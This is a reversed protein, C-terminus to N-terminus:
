KRETITRIKFRYAHMQEGYVSREADDWVLRVSGDLAKEVESAAIDLNDEVQALDRGGVMLWLSLNEVRAGLVPGPEFSDRVVVIVAHGALIPSLTNAPNPIILYKPKGRHRQTLVQGLEQAVLERTFPSSTAAPSM